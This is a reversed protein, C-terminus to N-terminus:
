QDPLVEGHEDVFKCGQDPDRGYSQGEPGLLADSTCFTPMAKRALEEDGRLAVAETPGFGGPLRAVFFRAGDYRNNSEVAIDVRDSDPSTLRVVTAETPAHGYVILSDSPGRSTLHWGLDSIPGSCAGSSLQEGEPAAEGMISICPGLTAFEEVALCWRYGDFDGSMVVLKSEPEPGADLPDVPGPDPCRPEVDVDTPAAEVPVGSAASVQETGSGCASVTLVAGAVICFLLRIM